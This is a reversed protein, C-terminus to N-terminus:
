NADAPTVIIVVRRNQARGEETENSAVPRAEGIGTARVQAAEMGATSLGAKVSAARRESLALNYDDSGTSDTHGEVAAGHIGVSLLAKSLRDITGTSETTLDSKDFEFLVRDNLGLWYNDGDSQFGEQRLVVLQKESFGLKRPTTQCAALAVILMMSLLKSM